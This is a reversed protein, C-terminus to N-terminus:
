KSFLHSLNELVSTYWPKKKIVVQKGRSAMLKGIGYTAVPALLKVILASSAFGSVITGFLKSPTLSNKTESFSLKLEEKSIESQLQLRKLDLDIQEFNTYPENKNM